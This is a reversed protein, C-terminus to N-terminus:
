FIHLGSSAPTILLVHNRWERWNCLNRARDAPDRFESCTSLRSIRDIARRLRLKRVCDQSAARYAAGDSGTGNSSQEVLTDGPPLVPRASHKLEASWMVPAWEGEVERLSHPLGEGEKQRDTERQACLSRPPNRVLLVWVFAVWEKSSSTPQIINNAQWSFLFRQLKIQTGLPALELLHLACTSWLLVRVTCSKAEIKKEEFKIQVKITFRAILIFKCFIFKCHLLGAGQMRLTACLRSSESSWGGALHARSHTSAPSACPSRLEDGPDGTLGTVFVTGDVWWPGELIPCKRSRGRASRSLMYLAIFVSVPSSSSHLTHAIWDNHLKESHIINWSMANSLLVDSRDYKYSGKEVFLTVNACYHRRTKNRKHRNPLIYVGFSRDPWRAATTSVCYAWFFTSHSWLRDDPSCTRM